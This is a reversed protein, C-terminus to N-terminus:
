SFLERFIHIKFMWGWVLVFGSIVPLIFFPWLFFKEFKDRRVLFYDTINVIMLSLYPHVFFLFVNEYNRYLLWVTVIEVLIFTGFLHVRRNKNRASVMFLCASFLIGELICILIWLVWGM